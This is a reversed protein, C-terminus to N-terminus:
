GASVGAEGFTAMSALAAVAARLVPLAVAAGTGEGLRMGLDVIPVLDLDTLAVIHAPETSLHGAQWWARAGPALKEAALAAATVVVGDLLVPTHRVAAQALFGAMAALDAGGCVRMLAVPDHRVPRARYMADRVAATKRMWGEDNIGTGRGMVAVPESNTLTGVLATAPTTNGIGMDGAILLDAGSDVEEDAIRRGADVAAAAEEATLADEVAINGSGRRVRYLGVAASEDRDVALDIVRVSAGAVAALVNIAAGGADINAVMQATVEPPYASVGAAAVGHDGAFVVVRAREFQRPPCTGQCSAVWISLEELRGLAGRPKTLIEQRARAAAAADPDPATVVFPEPGSPSDTM